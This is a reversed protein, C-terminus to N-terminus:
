LTGRVGVWEPMVVFAATSVPANKLSLVFLATAASAGAIGIALGVNALTEDTKGSAIEGTKDNSCPGGACGRSPDDYNSRAMLGFIAFAALGAVGVGGAVYAGTRMWPPSGPRLASHAPEGDALAPGATMPQTGSLADITLASHQGAALQVKRTVRPYGPTEVIIQAAQAAVPAPEMWAARLIEEGSVFVRTGEMANEITLTVFALRSEIEAREDVAARYAREYRNDQALLEKAEVATRGLEAYAAVTRGIARLCRAIELRANPSTVIEHSARFEGLADEYNGKAKFEKGRVFRSQAQERQVPTAADPTVGDAWAPSAVACVFAVLSVSVGCRRGM